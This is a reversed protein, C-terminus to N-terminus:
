PSTGHSGASRVLLEEVRQMQPAHFRAAARRLSAIAAAGAERALGAAAVGLAGIVAEFREPPLELAAGVLAEAVDDTTGELALHGVIAAASRMREGAREDAWRELEDRVIAPWEERGAKSLVVALDEHPPGLRGLLADCQGVVAPDARPVTRAQAASLRAAAIDDLRELALALNATAMAHQGPRLSRPNAARAVRFAEAAEAADGDALHALGLANAAAGRGAQDGCAAAAETAVRLTELAEEVRGEGLLAQGLERAAVVAARTAGAARFGDLAAAFAAVAPAGTQTQVLGLNFEAAAQEGPFGARRFGDAARAFARAAEDLSVADRLAIGLMNAAKARELELAHFLRESEQLALIAGTADGGQLRATGLHFLTTAHQIPYRDAPHRELRRELEAIADDDM